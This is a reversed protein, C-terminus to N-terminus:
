QLRGETGEPGHMRLAASLISAALADRTADDLHALTEGLTGLLCSSCGLSREHVCRGGSATEVSAQLILNDIQHFIRLTEVQALFASLDENARASDRTPNMAFECM